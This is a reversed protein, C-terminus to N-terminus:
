PAFTADALSPNIAVDTFRIDTSDGGPEVLRVAVPMRAEGGLTIEIASVWGALAQAKPELRVQDEGLLTVHFHEATSESLGAFIGNLGDLMPLPSFSANQAAGGPGGVVKKGGAFVGAKTIVIRMPEPETVHWAVGGDKDLFFTGSSRLVDRVITLHKEQVFRARLTKVAASARGLARLKEGVAADSTEAVATTALAVGLIVAVNTAVSAVVGAVVGAAVFRRTSM